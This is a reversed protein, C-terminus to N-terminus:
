RKRRLQALNALMSEREPSGQYTRVVEEAASLEADANCGRGALWSLATLPEGAGLRSLLEDYSRPDDARPRHVTALEHRVQTLAAGCLSETADLDLQPLYKLLIWPAGPNYKGTLMEVADATRHDLGRAGALAQERLAEDDAYGLWAKLHSRSTLMSFRAPFERLLRGLEKPDRLRALEVVDFNTERYSRSM